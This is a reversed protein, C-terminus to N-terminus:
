NVLFHIRTLWQTTDKETIPDTIYEEVVLEPHKIGRSHIISDLIMYAVQTKDYAGYYNLNYEKHSNISILQYFPDAFSTISVPVAAAMDAKMNKEDWKWFIGAPAGIMNKGALKSSAPLHTNFYSSMDSFPVESRYGIFNTAPFTTENVTYGNIFYGGKGAQLFEDLNSLGKDFDKKISGNMNMILMMGRLVFPFPKEDKMTWTLDTNDGNAKMAINIDSVSNYDDFKLKSKVLSNPDDLIIEMNGSGSKKSKWSYTGGVGYSKAGYTLTMASDERIWKSWNPWNRFDVIQAYVKDPTSKITKSTTVDMQTPGFACLILYIGILGLLTIIIKKFM